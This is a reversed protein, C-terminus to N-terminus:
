ASGAITDYKLLATAVMRIPYRLRIMVRCMGIINLRLLVDRLRLLVNFKVM